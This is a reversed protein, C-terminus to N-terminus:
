STWTNLLSLVAVKTRYRVYTWWWWRCLLASSFEQIIQWSFPVNTRCKVCTHTVSRPSAQAWIPPLKIEVSIKPRIFTWLVHVCYMCSCAVSGIALLTAIIPVRKDNSVFTCTYRQRFPLKTSSGFRTQRQLHVCKDRKVSSFLARQQLCSSTSFVRQNYRAKM